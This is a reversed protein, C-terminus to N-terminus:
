REFKTSLVVSTATKEVGPLEGIQDLVKDMEETSAAEVLAVMDYVGSVSQLTRIAGITELATTVASTRKPNVQIMVHANLLRGGYDSHYRVTYGAIIRRKELRRIRDQVTSRSIGLDRALASTSARSNVRLMALLKQDITDLDM